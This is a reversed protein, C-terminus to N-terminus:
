ATRRTVEAKVRVRGVVITYIKGEVEAELDFWYIGPTLLNTQAKPLTLTFSGNTGDAGTIAPIDVMVVANSDDVDNIDKKMTSRFVWGTIPLPSQDTEDEFNVQFTRDDGRYLEFLISSTTNTCM